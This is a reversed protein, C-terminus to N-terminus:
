RFFMSVMRKGTLPFVKSIAVYFGVQKQDVSFRIFPDELEYSESRVALKSESERRGQQPEWGETIKAVLLQHTIRYVPILTRFRVTM